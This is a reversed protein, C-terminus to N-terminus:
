GMVVVRYANSAPAVAFDLTVVSTSTHTVGVEVQEGTSNLFVQVIVDLTGLSHTVAISTAAGNGVNQAFSRVTGVVTCTVTVDVREAGSNDAITYSIGTGPIFNIGRRTGVASGNNSVAVRANASLTLPIDADVLAAWTPASSTMNLFMKTASANPALRTGAGSVGGYIIDGATTMPSLANFALPATIQGTGGNGIPLTGTVDATLSVASYTPAGGANGHLVQTTTGAAGQVIASGNSIMITSGSLASASNTGGRAIPLTGTTIASADIVRQTTQDIVRWRTTTADYRLVASESAGLVLNNGDLSIIRNIASSSVDQQTLTIANAGVNTLWITRGDTGNLFGTINFPASATLRFFAADGPNYDNQSSGISGPSTATLQLRKTLALTTGDFTFNASSALASGNDFVVGNSTLGTLDASVFVPTATTRIDQVTSLTITGAGNTITVGANAGAAITALAFGSGNGILLTGNAALHTDLGTGGFTTSVITGQWVGTGITGLTTITAQGVYSTNIDITPNGAVGDGNTVTIRSATGTITRGTYTNAATRTVLGSVSSIESGTTVRGYIDVTVLSYTGASVVTALDLQTSTFVFRATIDLDLTNGTKNIGNGATIEGTGTFQVFTLATTNLTIPNATSLVWGTSANTTGEEIFVYMGSNVEGTTDADTARTLVWKSAGSGVSTVTYIGNDAGAAGDKLLVRDGVILTVGDVAALTGNVSETLVNGVRAYGALAAATAVRCSAKFDLGTAMNDVYNKTAADQAGVPDLLNSLLQSNMSVTATPVAMQDLRNLRVATNFDSITAALQTGTHNARALYYSGSRYTVTGDDLATAQSATGTLNSTITTASFNGSGDRLVGTNATAATAFPYVDWTASNDRWRPRHLDTRYWVQGEVPSGPDSGLQQFRVNQLELQSMDIPVAFKRGAM